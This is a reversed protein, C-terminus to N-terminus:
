SGTAFSTKSQQLFIVDETIIHDLNAPSLRVVLYLQYNGGVKFISVQFAKQTRNKQAVKGRFGAVIAKFM